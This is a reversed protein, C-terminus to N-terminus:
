TPATISITISIYISSMDYIGYGYPDDYIIYIDMYIMM